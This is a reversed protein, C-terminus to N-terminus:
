IENYYKFHEIVSKEWTFQKARNKGKLTMDERLKKNNIVSYIKDLLDEGSSPNFYIASDGLVEKISGGPGTVVPCGCEMAELPPFGFGEYYSTYV